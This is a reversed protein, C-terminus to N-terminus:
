GIQVALSLEVTIDFTQPGAKKKKQEGRGNVRMVDFWPMFDNDCENM